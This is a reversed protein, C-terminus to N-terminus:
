SMGVDLQSELTRVEERGNVYENSICTYLGADEMRVNDFNLVPGRAVISGLPKEWRTTSESGLRCTM